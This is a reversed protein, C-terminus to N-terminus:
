STAGFKPIRHQGLAVHITKTETYFEFSYRGGERGIGSEKMGGFPTRLDRVNQSNVWVMGSEIEPALRTARSVDSTWLYAALGYRVDNAMRLVEAEDEFPIVTLVPGFIEEQAVRMENRVDVIVTPELYNGDALEPREPRRGGVAITAGEERAIDLYGMVRELHRRHILPGVETAPDLPDGVRIHRVREILRSVFDDYIPRELFLRTGATCREGNLSFVGFIAADLA